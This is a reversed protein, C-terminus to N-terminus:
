PLGEATSVPRRRRSRSFGRHPTPDGAGRPGWGNGPLTALSWLRIPILLLAYILGYSVVFGPRKPRPQATKGTLVAASAIAMIALSLLGVAGHGDAGDLAALVSAAALMPPLTLRAAIDLKLYPSRGRVARLIPVLERYFSRNWRVQQRAYRRLTTPVITLARASPQYLSRYRKQALILNTLHIDDGTICKLGLFKQQLYDKLVGKIAERRYGSFPGSCCLVAGVHSQAAREEEFLLRYREDILRTLWNHDRNLVRVDGTVAGVDAEAFAPVLQRLADPQLVTDSDITVVLEGRGRRIAAAQAERKGRRPRKLVTWQQRGQYRHYTSDLEDRNTSGDDVLFFRLRGPYDLRDLSDCCEALVGPNENHCPLVVDVSPWRRGAPRTRTALYRRAYRSQAVGYVIVMSVYLM